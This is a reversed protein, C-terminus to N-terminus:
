LDEYHKEIWNAIQEFTVGADNAEALTRYDRLGFSINYANGTRSEMGSWSRVVTPLIAKESFYRIPDTQERAIKPHAEAHLNCLVGLCCFGDDSTRLQGKAQKYDGSRLAAVWRKAIKKNM